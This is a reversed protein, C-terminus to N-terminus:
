IIYFFGESVLVMLLGLWIDIIYETIVRM